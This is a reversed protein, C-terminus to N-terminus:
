CAALAADIARRFRPLAASLDRQPTVEGCAPEITFEEGAGHAALAMTGLGTVESMHAPHITRAAVDALFQAFYPNGSMGGDIRVTECRGVCEEMAALVEAARYAVGELISQVLLLPGHDLSLGSWVGRARPQWHPSGLGALAPVFVLGQEVASPGAIANLQAFDRFLGLDRAWNLAASATFIGGDLAYTPAEGAKQWAVTPLLGLERRNIIEDGTVMLAFAGTGFTIKVEGKHRCGFGYLSAQQDVVSATLAVSGSSTTMGGFDGTTPVIAPLCHRPINFLECLMPDWDLTRLNMLSTRSATTVDTVCRGTLRDLFFADTTGLRLRGQALAAGAQSLNEVIWALKGASFYPDLPLGARALVESEVGDAKLRELMDLSRNDQWVLVPSLPEKTIADWALCSEGQNDLGIFRAGPVSDACSRINTLLEEPDHEVWGPRPYHQRHAVSHTVTVSGDAETVLARTSTTGQDIGAITM